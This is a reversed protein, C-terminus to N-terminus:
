RRREPQAFINSQKCKESPCPIQSIWYARHDQLLSRSLERRPRERIRPFIFEWTLVMWFHFSLPFPWWQSISHSPVLYNQSSSQQLHSHTCFAGQVSCHPVHKWSLDQLPHWFIGGDKWYASHQNWLSSTLQLCFTWILSLLLQLMMSGNGAQGLAGGSVREKM